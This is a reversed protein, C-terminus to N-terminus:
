QPICRHRYFRGCVFILRKVHNYCLWALTTSILSFCPFLPRPSTAQYGIPRHVKSQRLMPLLGLARTWIGAAAWERQNAIVNEYSPHCSNGSNESLKTRSFAVLMLSAILSMSNAEFVDRFHIAYFDELFPLSYIVGEGIRLQRLWFSCARLVSSVSSCAVCFKCGHVNARVLDHLM